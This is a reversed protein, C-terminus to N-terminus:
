YQYTAGVAQGAQSAKQSVDLCKTTNNQFSPFGVYTFSRHPPVSFFQGRFSKWTSNKNIINKKENLLLRM